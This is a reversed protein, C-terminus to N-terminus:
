RFTPCLILKDAPAARIIFVANECSVVKATKSFLIELYPQLDQLQGRYRFFFNSTEIDTKASATGTEFGISLLVNLLLLTALPPSYGGVPRGVVFCFLSFVLPLTSSVFSLVLSVFFNSVLFMGESSLGELPWPCLRM